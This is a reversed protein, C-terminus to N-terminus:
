NKLLTQNSQDMAEVEEELDREDELVVNVQSTTADRGIRLAQKGTRRQIKSIKNQKDM